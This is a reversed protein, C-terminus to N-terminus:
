IKTVGPLWVSFTSGAGPQSHLSIIGQHLEVIQRCIALGIGFGTYPIASEARYFPDFIRTQEDSAIGIGTDTVTLLCGNDHAVLSVRARHDASYKCANDCLNLVVRQLLTAEGLVLLDAENEPLSDYQIAVAYDPRVALLEDQAAFVVEDLRVPTLTTRDAQEITRALFLLSNTLAVLRDTDTQLNQFTLQDAEAQRPRNLGLQVELKLAALPTRLEHSAHSVFSRQQDFASELRNLVANFNAALQEIEDQKKGEDLRQRLNRATISQVQQNIHAVPRLARGVYIRGLWVTLGLGGVLGWLLALGLNQLKSQGYQDHASALVVVLQDGRPVTIGILENAGNYTEVEGEQRVQELLERNFSVPHDDVSSYVLRNDHDFVLVKEDILASITNRDIIKLLAQDVENVEILLRATTRAKSKLREYFEERRYTASAVYVVVSFVVLITAVILSFRILLRNRITM